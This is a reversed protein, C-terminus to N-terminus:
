REGCDSCHLDVTCSEMVCCDRPWRKCSTEPPVAPSPGSRRNRLITSGVKGVLGVRAEFGETSGNFVPRQFLSWSEQKKTHKPLMSAIFHM